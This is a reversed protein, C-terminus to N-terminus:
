KIEGEKEAKKLAGYYQLVHHIDSLKYDHFLQELEYILRTCDSCSDITQITKYCRGHQLNIESM